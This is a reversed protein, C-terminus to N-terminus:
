GRGSRIAECITMDGISRGKRAALIEETVRSLDAIPKNAVPNLVAIPIGRRTITISEGEQVRALLKPLQVKAEHSGVTSM